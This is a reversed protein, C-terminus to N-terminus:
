RPWPKSWQERLAARLREVEAREERYGALRAEARFAALAPEATHNNVEGATRLCFGDHESLWKQAKALDEETYDSVEGVGRAPGVAM